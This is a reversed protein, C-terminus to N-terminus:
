VNRVEIWDKLLEDISIGMQHAIMVLNKVSPLNDGMMLRSLSAEHISLAKAFERQNMRHKAMENRVKMGLMGKHVIVATM